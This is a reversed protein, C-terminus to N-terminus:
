PTGVRQAARAAPSGHQCASCTATPAFTPAGCVECPTLGGRTGDRWDLYRALECREGALDADNM